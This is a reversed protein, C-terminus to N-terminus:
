SSKEKVMRLTSVMAGAFGQVNAFGETGYTGSMCGLVIERDTQYITDSIKLRYLALYGQQGDATRVSWLGYQANCGHLYGAAEDLLQTETQSAAASSSLVGTLSNQILDETQEEPDALVYLFYYGSNTRVRAKGITAENGAVGGVEFPIETFSVVEDLGAVPVYNMNQLEFISDSLGAGPYVVEPVPEQVYFGCVVYVVLWLMALIGAAYVSKPIKM